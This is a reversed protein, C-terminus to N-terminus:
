SPSWLVRNGLFLAQIANSLAVLRFIDNAVM